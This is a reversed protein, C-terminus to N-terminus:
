GDMQADAIASPQCDSGNNPPNGPHTGLLLALFSLLMSLSAKSLKLKIDLFM